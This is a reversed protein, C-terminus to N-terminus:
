HVVQVQRHLTTGNETTFVFHYSGSTWDVIDLQNMGNINPQYVLRGIADYVQLSKLKSDISWQINDNAPNPWIAFADAGELMEVNTITVGPAEWICGGASYATATLIGADEVTVSSLNEAILEGNLYWDIIVGELNTTYLTPDNADQIIALAMSTCGNVVNSTMNTIQTGLGVHQISASNHILTGLPVNAHQAVSFQVFGSAGNGATFSELNIGAFVFQVAGGPLINYTVPHSSGLVQITSADLSPDIEDTIIINASNTLYPNTFSILYVLDANQNVSHDVGIGTTEQKTQVGSTCAFPQSSVVMDTVENSTGNNVYVTLTNNILSGAYNAGPNQIQIYFSSTMGVGLNSYSFEAQNNVYSLPFPNIGTVVLAPDITLLFTGSATQNGSNTLTVVIETESDCIGQYGSIAGDVQMVNGNAILGFNYGSLNENGLVTATLSTPTTPQWINADYDISVTNNGIDGPFSYDGNADSSLTFGNINVPYYPLLADGVNFVGNSNLDQFVRGSIFNTPMQVVVTDTVHCAEFNDMYGHLVFIEEGTQTINPNLMNANSLYDAPTWYYSATGVSNASLQVVVPPQNGNSCSISVDTHFVLTICGSPHSSTFQLGTLTGDFEGLLPDTNSPGDYVRVYDFNVELAGSAFLLHIPASCNFYTEPCYTYTLDTNNRLCYQFELTNNCENQVYVNGNLQNNINSYVFDFGADVVLEAPVPSVSVETQSTSTCGASNTVSYIYDFTGLENGAIEIVDGNPDSMLIAPGSWFSSDAGAGITATYTEFQNFFESSLTVGYEFLFGDDAAANDTFTYTWTGAVPCGVLDCLSGFPAYEGSALTGGANSAWTGNPSGEVWSYDFGVGATGNTNDVPQGIFTGGGGGQHLTAQQGNPCILRITLDGMYSHEMNVFANIIQNCNTITAGDAVDAVPFTFTSTTVDVLQSVTEASIPVGAGIANQSFAGVLEGTGGECVSISTPINITPYAVISIPMDVPIVSECSGPQSIHLELSYVGLPLTNLALIPNNTAVINQTSFQWSYAYANQGNPLVADNLVLSVDSGECFQYFGGDTNNYGSVGIVGAVGSCPTQGMSEISLVSFLLGLSFYFLKM